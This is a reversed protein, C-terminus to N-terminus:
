KIGFEEELKKSVEEASLVRGAEIDDLGEKIMKELVYSEYKKSLAEVVDSDEILTIQSLKKGLYNISGGIHYFMEDDLM